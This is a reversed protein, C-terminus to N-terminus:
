VGRCDQFDRIKIEKKFAKIAVQMRREKEVLDSTSKGAIPINPILLIAFITSKLSRKLTAIVEEITTQEGVFFAINVFHIQSTSQM